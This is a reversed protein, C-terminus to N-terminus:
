PNLLARLREVVPRPTAQMDILIKQMEEGSSPDAQDGGSAKAFEAKM